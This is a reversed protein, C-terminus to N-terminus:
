GWQPLLTCPKIEDPSLVGGFYRFRDDTYQELSPLEVCNQFVLNFLWVTEYKRLRSNPNYEQYSELYIRKNFIERDYYEPELKQYLYFCINEYAFFEEYLVIQKQGTEDIGCIVTSNEDIIEGEFYNQLRLLIAALIQEGNNTVSATLAPFDSKQIAIIDTTQIANAGFIDTFSLHKM